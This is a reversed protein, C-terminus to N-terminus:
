ETVPVFALPHVFLAVTDIVTFGDGVTVTEEFVVIQLPLEAFRVALPAIVYIQDGAVPKPDVVPAVTVALGVVLVM